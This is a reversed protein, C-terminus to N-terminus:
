REISFHYILETNDHEGSQWREHLYEALASLELTPQTNFIHTVDKLEASLAEPSFYGQTFPPKLRRNEKKGKLLFSNGSKTEILTAFSGEEFPLFALPSCFGILPIGLAFSLTKGVTAGVRTGTYSGPGIGIAIYDLDGNLLAQISPLLNKSLQNDGSLRKLACPKGKDTLAIFSDISSTEIILATM